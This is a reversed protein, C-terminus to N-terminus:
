SRVGKMRGGRENGGRSEKLERKVENRREGRM